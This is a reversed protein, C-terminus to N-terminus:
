TTCNPNIIQSLLTHTPHEFSPHFRYQSPFRRPMDYEPQPNSKLACAFGACPFSVRILFVIYVYKDANLTLM